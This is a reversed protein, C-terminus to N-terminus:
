KRYGKIIEIIFPIFSIIIIGIVLLGFHDKILSINGFLYGGFVFISCWLFAGIINYSIFTFYHMLGIGAVFPAFTRVIPVFRAIIITKKGHKNFFLQTRILHKKNFLVTDERKFIQPGIYKGIHYNLTDGLVAALFFTLFILGVNFIGKASLAGAAFLLSDGPLFPAIVIGTEFFVILFLFLYTITSYELAIQQIYIDIHLILDIFNSFMLYMSGM